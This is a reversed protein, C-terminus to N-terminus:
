LRMEPNDRLLDKTYGSDSMCGPNQQEHRFYTQADIVAKAQIGKGFNFNEAAKRIKRSREKYGHKERVAAEENARAITEAVEENSVRRTRMGHTIINLAMNITSAHFAPGVRLLGLGM